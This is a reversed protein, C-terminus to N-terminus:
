IRLAYPEQHLLITGFERWFTQEIPRVTGKFHVEDLRQALLMPRRAKDNETIVFFRGYEAIRTDM